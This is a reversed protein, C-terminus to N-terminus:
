RHGTFSMRSGLPFSAPRTEDGQPSRETPNRGCAPGYESPAPTNGGGRIRPGSLGELTEVRRSRAETTGM